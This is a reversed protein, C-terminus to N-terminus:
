SVATCLSAALDVHRKRKRGWTKHLNSKILFARPGNKKRAKEKGSPIGKVNCHQDPPKKKAGEERLGELTLRTCPLM